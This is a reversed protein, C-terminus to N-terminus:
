QQHALCREAYQLVRVRIENLNDLLEKAAPGSGGRVTEYVELWHIACLPVEGYAFVTPECEARLRQISQEGCENCVPTPM